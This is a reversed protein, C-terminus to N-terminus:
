VAPRIDSPPSAYPQRITTMLGEDSMYALLASHMIWNESAGTGSVVDLQEGRENHTVKLEHRHYALSHNLASLVPLTETSGNNNQPRQGGVILDDPSPVLGGSLPLVRSVLDGVEDVPRQFEPGPEETHFSAMAMFIPKNEQMATVQRTAFSRGDRVREVKYLIPIRGDGALIFYSHLSHIRHTSLVTRSAAVVSQAAILGGFLHTKTDGTMAQKRPQGVYIDCGAVQELALTKELDSATLRPTGVAAANIM